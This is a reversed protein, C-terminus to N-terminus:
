RSARGGPDPRDHASRVVAAGACAVRSAMFNATKADHPPSTDINIPNDLFRPEFLPKEFNDNTNGSDNAVITVRRANRVAAPAIAIAGSGRM